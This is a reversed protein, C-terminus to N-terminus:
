GRVVKQFGYTGSFRKIVEEDSLFKETSVYLINKDSLVDADMYKFKYMGTATDKSDADVVIGSLFGKDM